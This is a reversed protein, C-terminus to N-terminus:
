FNLVVGGGNALLQLFDLRVCFPVRAHARNSTDLNKYRRKEDRRNYAFVGDLDVIFRSNGCFLKSLFLPFGLFKERKEGTFFYIIYWISM